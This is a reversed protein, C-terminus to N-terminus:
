CAVAGKKECLAVIPATSRTTFSEVVADAFESNASQRLVATKLEQVLDVTLTVPPQQAPGATRVDDPPFHLLMPTAAGQADDAVLLHWERTGDQARQIAHKLHGAGQERGLLMWLPTGYRIPTRGASAALSPSLMIPVFGLLEQLPECGAKTLTGFDGATDIQPVPLSEEKWDDREWFYRALKPGNVAPQIIYTNVELRASPAAALLEAQMRLFAELDWQEQTLPQFSRFPQALIVQVAGNALVVSPYAQQIEWWTVPAPRATTPFSPGNLILTFM